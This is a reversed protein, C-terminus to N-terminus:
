TDSHYEAKRAQWHRVDTLFAEVKAHSEDAESVFLSGCIGCGCVAVKSAFGSDTYRNASRSDIM